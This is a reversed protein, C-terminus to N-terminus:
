RGITVNRRVTNEDQHPDDLREVTNELEKIRKLMDQVVPLNNSYIRLSCGKLFISTMTTGNYELTQMGVDRVGYKGFPGIFVDDTTLQKHNLCNMAVHERLAQKFDTLTCIENPGIVVAGSEMFNVILNTAEKLVFERTVSEMKHGVKNHKSANRSNLTKYGCSGCTHLPINFTEIGTM